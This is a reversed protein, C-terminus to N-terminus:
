KVPKVKYVISIDNISFGAESTGTSEIYLRIKYVNNFSIPEGFDDLTPMEFVQTIWNEAQDVDQALDGLKFNNSLAGEEQGSTASRSMIEGRLKVTSPNGAYKHTVM